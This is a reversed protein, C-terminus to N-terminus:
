ISYVARKFFNGREEYNNFSDFSACGPSFLVVGGPATNKYAAIIADELKDKIMVNYFGHNIATAFIKNKTDGTVIIKNIKETHLFIEDFDTNKDSGGLILTIPYFLSDIAASTSAPNTSKSDNIFVIGSKECVYELRHEGNKFSSLIECIISNDMDPLLTKVSLIAAMINYLNHKGLLLLKETSCIIEGGYYICNNKLYCLCDSNSGFYLKKSNINGIKSVYDDDYNLIAFDKEKQNSFIKCKSNFYNDLTLHWNLHDCKFNLFVAVKARFSSVSYLQFSSVELIVYDDEEIDQVCSCFPVGINGLLFVKKGAAKLLKHILNVTTTKGNTGTVAIINKSKCYLYGVELEGLIKKDAIRAYEILSNWCPIGPSVVIIDSKDIENYINCNTETTELISVNNDKKLLEFAARGSGGKGLVLIKKNKIM